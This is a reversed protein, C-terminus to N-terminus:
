KQYVIEGGLITMDVKTELIEKHPIEFLNKDLVVIDALKGAKISGKVDEQFEAYASGLTYFEVAQEMTLKEDPFWGGEPGGELFERTVAAYLGLMPNLPEVPWDTGFAVRVGEKVFSNFLYSHKVRDGIRKRGM